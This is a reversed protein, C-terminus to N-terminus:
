GPGLQSFSVTSNGGTANIVVVEVGTGPQVTQHQFDSLLQRLDPSAYQQWDKPHKKYAAAFQDDGVNLAALAASSDGGYKQKEQRFILAAMKTSTDFDNLDAGPLALSKPIHLPGIGNKWTAPTQQALFALTGADLGAKQELVGFRDAKDADTAYGQAIMSYHKDIATGADWAADQGAQAKLGLWTLFNGIKGWGSAATKFVGLIDALPKLAGAIEGTSSVLEGAKKKFEESQISKTLSGLWSTVDDLAKKVAPSKLFAVILDGTAGSLAILKPVLPELALAFKDKLLTSTREIQQSLDQWAKAGANSLGFNKQDRQIGSLMGSFEKDSMGQIRNLGQEDMPVQYARSLPGLMDRSTTKTFERIGQLMAISDKTTDGSMAQGHMWPAYWARRQTVDSEATTMSSLFGQTDFGKGGFNVNFAQLAAPSMGFGMSQSRTDGISHALRDIGFLSGFLAGGALLGGWKLLSSSIDLVNKSMSSSSRSMSTWLSESERLRRFREKDVENDQPSDSLASGGPKANRYLGDLKEMQTSLATLEKGAAKWKDPTKGLADVYKDFLAAFREFEKADLPIEVVATKTM